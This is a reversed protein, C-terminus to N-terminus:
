RESGRTLAWPDLEVTWRPAPWNEAVWQFFSEEAELTVKHHARGIVIWPRERDHETLTFGYEIM